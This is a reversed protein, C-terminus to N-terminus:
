VGAPWRRTHEVAARWRSLLADRQATSAQPEFRRDLQWHAALDDVSRWLGVALGALSAAGLATTETLRPRLVPVGLIDAQMQMLMDNGAAGGDVRLEALAIGADKQM